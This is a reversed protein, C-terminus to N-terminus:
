NDEVPHTYDISIPDNNEISGKYNVKDNILDITTKLEKTKEIM